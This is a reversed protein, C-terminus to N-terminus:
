KDFFLLRIFDEVEEYMVKGNLNPVMSDIMSMDTDSHHHKTIILRPDIKNKDSLHLLTKFFYEKNYDFSMCTKVDYLDRATGRRALALIKDAFLVEFPYVYFWTDFLKNDTVDFISNAKLKEPKIKYYNRSLDIMIGEKTRFRYFIDSKPLEEHEKKLKSYVFATNRSKIDIDYSLRQKKGFYFLNLATGGFLIIKDGFSNYLSNMAVLLDYSKGIREPNIGTKLSMASIIEEIGSPRAM